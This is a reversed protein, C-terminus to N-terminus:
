EGKFLKTWKSEKLMHAVETLKDFLEAHFKIDEKTLVKASYGCKNKTGFLVIISGVSQTERAYFSTQIAYALKMQSGSKWDIIVRGTIKKHEVEALMDYRGAVPGHTNRKVVQEMNIPMVNYDRLFNKLGFPLAPLQEGTKIFTECATHLATGKTSTLEAKAVYQDYSLPIRDIFSVHGQDDKAKFRTGKPSLKDTTMWNYLPFPLIFGKEDILGCVQTARIHKIGEINYYTGTVASEIQLSVSALYGKDKHNFTGDIIHFDSDYEAYSYEYVIASVTLGDEKAAFFAEREPTNKGLYGIFIGNYFVKVALPDSKSSDTPHIFPDHVLECYGIPILNRVEPNEKVRFTIGNVKAIM